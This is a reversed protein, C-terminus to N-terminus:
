EVDVYLTITIKKRTMNSVTLRHDGSKRITFEQPVKPGSSRSIDQLGPETLFAQVDSDKFDYGVTYGLKQGKRAGIIFDVSGESSIDKTVMASTEGSAFKVRIGDSQASNEAPNDPDTIGIALTFQESREAYNSVQIFFDGTKVATMEITEGGNVAKDGISLELMSGKRPATATVTITQGKKAWAVFRKAGSAPAKRDLHSENDGSPFSIREADAFDAADTKNVTNYVDTPKKASVKGPELTLFIRFSTAKNSNNSVSLNYDKTVSIVEEYPDENPEISVKGLDMSGMKTDDIFSLSLKDGKKAFFVFSRSSNAAVREEWVLANSGEKAFDIRKASQAFTVIGFLLLVVAAITAKLLINKM